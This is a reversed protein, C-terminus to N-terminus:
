VSCESLQITEEEGRQVRLMICASSVYLCLVLVYVYYSFYSMYTYLHWRVRSICDLEHMRAHSKLLKANYVTIYTYTYVTTWIYVYILIYLYRCRWTHAWWLQTLMLPYVPLSKRGRRPCYWGRARIKVWGYRIIYFHNFYVHTM